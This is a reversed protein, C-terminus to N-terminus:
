TFRRQLIAGAGLPLFMQFGLSHWLAMAPENKTLVTLKIRDCGRDIMHDIVATALNRGYGQRRYQPLICFEDISGETGPIHPEHSYVRFAVFGVRTEGDLAWWRHFQPGCIRDIDAVVHTHDDGYPELEQFYPTLLVRFAVLDANDIPETRFGRTSDIM